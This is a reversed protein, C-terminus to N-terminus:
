FRFYAGIMPKANNTFRNTSSFAKALDPSHYLDGRYQFRLGIHPVVTWDAGVGYEFVPKTNGRTATQGGDPSIFLLGVGALAYPKIILHPVSVFWDAGVRHANAKVSQYVNGATIACDPLCAGTNANPSKYEEDARNFSYNLEYGVLPNSIHRMELMVGAPNSPSEATGNGTTTGRFSGYLSAAVDTQAHAAVQTALTMAVVLFTRLFIQGNKM